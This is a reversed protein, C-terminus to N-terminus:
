AALTQYKFELHVFSTYSSDSDTSYSQKHPVIFQDIEDSM